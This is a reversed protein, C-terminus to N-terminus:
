WEQCRLRSTSIAVNNGKANEGLLMEELTCLESSAMAGLDQKEQESKCLQCYLDLMPSM